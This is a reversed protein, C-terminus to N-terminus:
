IGPFGIMAFASSLFMLQIDRPILNAKPSFSQFGKVGDQIYVQILISIIWSIFCEPKLIRQILYLHVAETSVCLYQYPKDNKFLRFLKWYFGKSMICYHFVGYIVYFSVLLDNQYNTSINEQAEKENTRFHNWSKKFTTFTSNHGFNNMTAHLFLFRLLFCYRDLIVRFSM